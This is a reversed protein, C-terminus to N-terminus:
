LEFILYDRWKQSVSHFGVHRSSFLPLHETFGRESKDVDRYAASLHTAEDM